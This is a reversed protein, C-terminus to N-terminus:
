KEVYHEPNSFGKVHIRQHPCHDFCRLCRLCKKTDISWDDKIAKVPCNDICIRCTNCIPFSNIYPHTGFYGTKYMFENFHTKFVLNWFIDVVYLGRYFLRYIGSQQPLEYKRPVIDGQIDINSPPQALRIYEISRWDVQMFDCLVKDLAQQHTSAFLMNSRVVTGYVAGDGEMSNLADCITITPTLLKALDAVCGHIGRVHMQKRTRNNVLGMLNKMGTTVTTIVHTKLIPLNVLKADKLLPNVYARKLLKGGPIKRCIYDREDPISVELGCTEALEKIGLFHFVEQSRFEMGPLETLYPKAGLQNLRLAVAKILDLNTTAGATSVRPAVFNPKLIVKDGRNFLADFGIEDLFRVLDVDLNDIKRAFVIPNM